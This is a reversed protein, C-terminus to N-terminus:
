SSARRYVDVLRRFNAAVAASAETRTIRGDMAARLPDWWLTRGVAFGGFGRVPAAARLWTDVAEADAGRGLVLCASREGDAGTAEALARFADGSPMGELKWLDPALGDDVLERVARVTAAPRLRDDYDDATEAAPAPVLLELMWRRGHDVVWRQLSAVRRRQAANAAPDEDPHYRVLVKAFTPDARELTPGFGDDGHEFALWRQGSVEVPVATVVGAERARAILGAGYETDILLAKTGAGAGLDASLLGEVVIAKADRARAQDAASPPGTLGFFSTRLSNRHDFAMTWLPLLSGLAVGAGPPHGGSEGTPASRSTM